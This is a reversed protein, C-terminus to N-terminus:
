ADPITHEILDTNLGTNVVDQLLVREFELLLLYMLATRQRWDLGAFLPLM